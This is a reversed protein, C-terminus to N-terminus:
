SSSLKAKAVGSVRAGDVKGAAKAMVAGIVKGMDSMSTAGTQSIAEDVLMGLEEDSMQAPLYEELIALEAKEKQARDEAGAKTYAEISDRRQKAERMVVVIEEEGSLDHMKEIKEYNLASSLMKLTSLRIEDRAKMAEMIKQQIEQAIM